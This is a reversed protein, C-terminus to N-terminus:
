IFNVVEKHGDFQGLNNRTRYKAHLRRHEAENRILLLNEIRNDLTNGNVHHVSETPKLYRGLYQEMVLRHECVYGKETAYPHNPCYIYVYGKSITKGGRWKPNGNGIKSKNYCEQSCFFRRQQKHKYTYRQSTSLKFKKNCIPCIAYLPINMYPRKPMM